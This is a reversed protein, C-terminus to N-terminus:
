SRAEWTWACMPCVASRRSWIVRADDWCVTEARNAMSQASEVLLMQTHDHLKYLAPGLDPFGTPQFREGQVPRLAAHALLRPAENLLNLDLM